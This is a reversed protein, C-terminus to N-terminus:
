GKHSQHECCRCTRQAVEGERLGHTRDVIQVRLVLQHNIGAIFVFDLGVHEEVFCPGFSDVRLEEFDPNVAVIGIGSLFDHHGDVEAGDPEEVVGRAMHVACGGIQPEMVGVGGRGKHPHNRGVIGVGTRVVWNVESAGVVIVNVAVSPHRGRGVVIRVVVVVVIHTAGVLRYVEVACGISRSRLSGLDSDAVSVHGILAADGVRPGAVAVGVAGVADCAAVHYGVRAVGCHRAAAGAGGGRAGGGGCAGRFARHGVGGSAGGGSGRAVGVAVVAGGRAAAIGAAVAAGGRAAAVGAAVAAGSRAAAIGVAVGGGGRAAVSVAVGGGGRAAVSAAVVGRSCAGGSGGVGTCSGRVVVSARVVCGVVAAGGRVVAAGARGGCSASLMIVLLLLLSSTGLPMRKTKVLFIAVNIEGISDNTDFLARGITPDRRPPLLHDDYPM